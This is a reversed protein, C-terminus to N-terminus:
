REGFSQVLGRSLFRDQDPLCVLPKYGIQGSFPLLHHIMGEQQNLFAVLAQRISFFPAIVRTMTEMRRAMPVEM